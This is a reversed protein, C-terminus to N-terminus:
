KADACCRIGIEDVETIGKAFPRTCTLYNDAATHTDGFYGGMLNCRPPTTADDCQDVWEDINGSLDFVQDYPASTGHCDTTGVPGAAAANDVCAGAVHTNGYPYTTALDGQGCTRTWESQKCLRKGAWLCYIAAECYLVNNQPMTDAAYTKAAVVFGTCRPPPGPKTASEVFARYQKGTTETADICFTGGKADRVAVLASGQIETPCTGLPGVDADGTEAPDTEADGTEAPGTEGPSTEASTSDAVSDAPEYRVDKVGAVGECGGVFLAVLVWGPGSAAHM